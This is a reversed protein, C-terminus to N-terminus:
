EQLARDRTEEVAQAPRQDRAAVADVPDIEMKAVLQEPAQRRRMKAAAKGVPTTENGRHKILVLDGVEDQVAVAPGIM